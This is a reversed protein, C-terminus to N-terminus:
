RRLTYPEMLATARPISSALSGIKLILVGILASEAAVSAIPILAQASFDRGVFRLVTLVVDCAVSVMLAFTSVSTMYVVCRIRRCQAKCSAAVRHSFMLGWGAVAFGVAVWFAYADVLGVTLGVARVEDALTWQALGYWALRAKMMVLLGLLLLVSASSLKRAQEALWVTAFEAALTQADGFRAIVAQATMFGNTTSSASMSEWLHDEVEQRVRRSLSPDFDLKDAIDAAYASIVEPERM